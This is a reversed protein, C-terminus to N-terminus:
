CKKRKWSNKLIYININTSSGCYCFFSLYVHKKLVLKSLTHFKFAQYVPGSERQLLTVPYNDIIEGSLIRKNNTITNAANRIRGQKAALGVDMESDNYAVM